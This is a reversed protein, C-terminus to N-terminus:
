VIMRANRRRGILSPRTGIIAETRILEEFRGDHRAEALAQTTGLVALDNIHVYSVTVNPHRQHLNEAARTMERAPIDGASVLVLNPTGRGWSHRPWVAVGRTLEDRASASQSDLATM